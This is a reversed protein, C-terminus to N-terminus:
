KMLLFTATSNIKVTGWFPQGAIAHSVFVYNRQEQAKAPTILGVALAMTSLIGACRTYTSKM